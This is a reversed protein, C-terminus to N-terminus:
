LLLLCIKVEEGMSMLWKFLTTM